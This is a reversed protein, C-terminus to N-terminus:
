KFSNYIRIEELLFKDAFKPKINLYDAITIQQHEKSKAKWLDRKIKCWVTVVWEIENIELEFDVLFDYIAKTSEFADEFKEKLRYSLLL